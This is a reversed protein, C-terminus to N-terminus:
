RESPTQNLHLGEIRRRRRFLQGWMSAALFLLYAFYGVVRWDSAPAQKTAVIFVCFLSSCAVVQLMAAWDIAMKRDVNPSNQMM